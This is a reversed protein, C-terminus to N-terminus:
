SDSLNMLGHCMSYYLVFNGVRYIYYEVLESISDGFLASPDRVAQSSV